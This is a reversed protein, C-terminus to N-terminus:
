WRNDEQISQMPKFDELHLLQGELPLLDHPFAIIIVGQKSL